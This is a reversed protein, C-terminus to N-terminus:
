RVHASYLIAHHSNSNRLNEYMKKHINQIYFSFIEVHLGKDYARVQVYSIKFYMYM